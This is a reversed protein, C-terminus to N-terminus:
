LPRHINRIFIVLQMVILAILLRPYAALHKAVLVFLLLMTAYSGQHVITSGPEFMVLVWFLLMGLTLLMVDKDFADLRRRVGNYMLLVVGFAFLELAFLTSFFSLMKWGSCKELSPHLSISCVNGTILTEANKLKNNAWEAITLERYEDIITELTGRTDEYASVGAFHYKVLRDSTTISGKYLQWPLLVAVGLIAAILLPAFSLKKSKWLPYLKYLLLLGFPAVTFLVGTHSLLGLAVLVAAVPVYRLSEKKLPKGIFPMMGAVVLSAALFKPWVFVSNM